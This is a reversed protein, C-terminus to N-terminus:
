ILIILTHTQHSVIRGIYQLRPDLITGFTVRHVLPSAGCNILKFHDLKYVHKYLILICTQCFLLM